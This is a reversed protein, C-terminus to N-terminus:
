ASRNKWQAAVEYLEAMGPLGLKEVIRAKHNKLTHYSVFLAEAIARARKGQALLGLIERERPTLAEIKALWPPVPPMGVLSPSRYILGDLVDLLCALVEGIQADLPLYGHVQLQQLAPHRFLESSTLVILHCESHHRRCQQLEAIETQALESLLKLLVNPKAGQNAALAGALAGHSIYRYGNIQLDQALHHERLACGLCLHLHPLPSNATLQHM